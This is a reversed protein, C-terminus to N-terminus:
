SILYENKNQKEHLYWLFLKWHVQLYSYSFCYFVHFVFIYVENKIWERYLSM